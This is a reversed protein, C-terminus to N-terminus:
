VAAFDTRGFNMCCTNGREWKTQKFVVINICKIIKLKINKRHYTSDYTLPAVLRKLFTECFMISFCNKYSIKQPVQELEYMPWVFRRIDTLDCARLCATASPRLVHDNTCCTCSVFWLMLKVLVYVIALILHKVLWTAVSALGINLTLSSLM